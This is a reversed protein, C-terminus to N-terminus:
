QEFSLHQELEEIWVLPILTESEAYRRMAALLERIRDQIVKEQWLQLPAIGIPPAEGKQGQAM